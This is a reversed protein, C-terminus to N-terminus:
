VDPDACPKEDNISSSSMYVLDVLSVCQLDCGARMFIRVLEGHNNMVAVRLAYSQDSRPDAGHEMLFNAMEVDKQEAAIVLLEGDNKFHDACGITAGAGLLSELMPINGNRVATRLLIGRGFGPEISSSSSLMEQVAETNNAYAADMIKEQEDDEPSKQPVPRSIQKHQKPKRKSKQKPM